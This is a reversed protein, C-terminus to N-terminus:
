VASLGGDIALAHGTMFSNEPASAWLMAQVVEEPEAFRRMPMNAVVRGRAEEESGRMEKLFGAVMQTDAFAPCLCNIRVGKRASEGAASKTMGVVGHKAAAYVSLLPAGVLGAVSAVNLIAGGKGSAAFQAEMVPIQAKMALFIGMLNIAFVGEAEAVEIDPLKQLIGGVGANNIAVDLRGYAEQAAGVLDAATHWLSVDGPHAVVAAGGDRLGAVTRELGEGDRDSVILKAGEEAFRKAALSGFGGAAGTILVSAGQFRGSM